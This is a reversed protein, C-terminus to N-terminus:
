AVGDASRRGRRAVDDRAVTPVANEDLAESWRRAVRHLAVVDAGIGAASGLYGIGSVSHVHEVIRRAGEDPPGRGSCAIDDRAVAPVAHQDLVVTRTADEHLAIGDARVGGARRGQAISLGADPETRPAVRDPSCGSPGAINDRPVAFGADLESPVVQHLA